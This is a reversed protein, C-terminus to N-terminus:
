IRHGQSNWYIDSSVRLFHATMQILYLADIKHAGDSSSDGGYWVTKIRRDKLLDMLVACMVPWPGREYGIDYFRWPNVVEHTSGEPEALGGHDIIKRIEAEPYRALFRNVNLEASKDHVEFYICADIGMM